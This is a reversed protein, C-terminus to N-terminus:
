KALTERLQERAPTSPPAGEKELAKRLREKARASGRQGPRPKKAAFRRTLASRSSRGSMFGGAGAALLLAGLLRRM